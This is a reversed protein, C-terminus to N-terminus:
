VNISIVRMPIQMSSVNTWQVVSGGLYGSSSVTGDEPLGFWYAREQMDM